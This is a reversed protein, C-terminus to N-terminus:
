KIRLINALKEGRPVLKMDERTVTGTVIILVGYVAAAFVISVGLYISIATRSTGLVGSAFRYLLAYASYAAGSMLATCILPKAFVNILKPRQKVKITIFAVNMVSIILFCVVTGVASGIIGIEPIAVLFYNIIIRIAGGVPFSIMALREYGNAQLIATTILQFCVFFSAAGLITLVSITIQQPDNYLAIMIPGALVMIGAAAPLALLNVLKISSQMIGGAEGGESKAIAAAIAPMISISIPVVLASPFNYITLGKTYLGFLASADYEILGLGSQLRGLVVSTDIVAMITMFSAGLTIPISVKMLRWLVNSRSLLDHTDRVSPLSQDVKKKYRMLLPICLGLGVTVGTIAGASVIGTGYNRSSLWLAAAIGFAAKCVVEVVQSAATPIMNQFGQTYGRYVSIICVFLVAPALVRIGPAALSNNMLASLSDAFFFMISMAILGIITFAPLAMSFYRKVLSMHGTAAATSVMRSLAVPVGATAITLVLTYINYTVQFSGIGADGMVNFIPIKYVAGIIKVFVTAAALIAAGKLYNQKKIEQLCIGGASASLGCHITFLQPTRQASQYLLKNKNCFTIRSSM